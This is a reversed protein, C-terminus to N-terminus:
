HHSQTQLTHHSPHLQTCSLIPSTWIVASLWHSSLFLPGGVCHVNSYLCLFIHAFYIVSYVCLFTVYYSHIILSVLTGYCLVTCIAYMHVFTTMTPIVMTVPCWTSTYPPFNLSLWDVIVRMVMERQREQLVESRPETARESERGLETQSQTWSQCSLHTQSPVQTSVTVLLTALVAIPPARENGRTLSFLVILIICM